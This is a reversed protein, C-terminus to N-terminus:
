RISGSMQLYPIIEDKYLHLFTLTTAFHEESPVLAKSLSFSLRRYARNADKASFIEEANPDETCSICLFSAMKRSKRKMYIHKNRIELHRPEAQYSNKM